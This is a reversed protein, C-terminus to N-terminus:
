QKAEREAELTYTSEARTTRNRVQVLLHGSDAWSIGLISSGAPEAITRSGLTKADILMLTSVRSSRDPANIVAFYRGEYSASAARLHSLGSGRFTRVRGTSLDRLNLSGDATQSLLHTGSVASVSSGKVLRASSGGASDVQVVGEDGLDLYFRNKKDWGLLTYGAGYVKKEEGTRLDKVWNEGDERGSVAASRTTWYLLLNGDPSISARKGWVIMKSSIGAGQRYGGTQAKLFPALTKTDPNLKYLSSAYEVLAQGDPLRHLEYGLDPSPLPVRRGASQTYRFTLAENLGDANLKATFTGTSGEAARVGARVASRGSAPDISAAAKRKDANGPLQLKTEQLAALRGPEKAAQSWVDSEALASGSVAALILLGAAAAKRRKGM